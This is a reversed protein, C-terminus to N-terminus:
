VCVGRPNCEQLVGPPADMQVIGRDSEGAAEPTVDRLCACQSEVVSGPTRVDNVVPAPVVISLVAPCNEVECGYLHSFGTSREGVTLSWAAAIIDTAVSKSCEGAALKSNVASPWPFM